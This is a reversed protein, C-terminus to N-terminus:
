GKMFKGKQEVATQCEVCNYFSHAIREAPILEGCSCYGDFGIPMTVAKRSQEIGNEIARTTLEEALELYKEDM